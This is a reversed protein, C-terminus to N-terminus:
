ARCCTSTPCTHPTFMSCHATLVGPSNMLMSCQLVRSTKGGHHLARRESMVVVPIVKTAQTRSKKKEYTPLQSMSVSGSELFPAPTIRVRSIMGIQWKETTASDKEYTHWNAVRMPERGGSVGSGSSARKAKNGEILEERVLSWSRLKVLRAGSTSTSM